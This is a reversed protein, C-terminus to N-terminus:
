GADIFMVARPSSSGLAALLRPMLRRLDALRNTTARLVVVAIPLVALNQRFSLNQDVTVFVDFQEAALALLEGNKMGTWGMERATKVDHGVMDRGLRRDVCEDLFVKVGSSRDSPGEGGGLLAIVHERSVSQFGEVFDDITEGAELYGLLTQVPVRTGHFVATGGM